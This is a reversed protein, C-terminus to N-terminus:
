FDFRDAARVEEPLWTEQLHLWQIPDALKLLVTSFRANRSQAFRQAGVQWESYTALVQDGSQFRVAVDRIEIRFGPNSGFTQEFGTKLHARTHAAGDPSVITFDPHLRSIFRSELHDRDATGNSWQTFFDHLSVIEQAVANLVSSM